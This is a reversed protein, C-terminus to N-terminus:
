NEEAVPTEINEETTSFDLLNNQSLLNYWTFLKKMDSVYVRESDYDPLIEEMYQKLLKPDSKPDIALGGNEKDFISKFVDKLPVDKEYTFMSIEELSSIRDTGFAPFRKKDSISEVIVGSKSRSVLVFLGSKESISLIESLKM